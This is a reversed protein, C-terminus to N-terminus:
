RRGGAHPLGSAAGAALDTIAQHMGDDIQKRFLLRYLWAAPGHVTIGHTIHTVSDQVSVVHTAELTALPLRSTETYSKNVSVETLTWHMVPGSYPINEGQTNVKFPGHAIVQKVLHDWQPVDAPDTYWAWIQQPSGSSVASATVTWSPIIVYGVVGVAALVATFLLLSNLLQKWKM